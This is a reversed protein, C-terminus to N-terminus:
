FGATFKLHEIANKIHYTRGHIMKIIDLLYEIITKYYEIKMTIKSVEKDAEIVAPLERKNYIVNSLEEPDEGKGSLFERKKKVIQKKDEEAKTKLLNIKILIDYYKSHLEPIKVSELHLNDVDIKSDERWMAQIDNINM